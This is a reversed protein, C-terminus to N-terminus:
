RVFNRMQSCFRDYDFATNIGCEMVTKILSLKDMRPEHNDVIYNIKNIQSASLNSTNLYMLDWNRRILKEAQVVNEYVAIPKKKGINATRAETLINSIDIDEDVSAMKPFRKAITKFGAGIVGEVNDSNDGAITKALCFNRASIGFKNLVENGDIIKRTSPDYINILPDHLLQYFDKDNSVIIRKSTSTRFKDQALYAVIDDCETDPVYVQCVPTSKLLATLMTIQQIRTEDDLALVDRMNEKGQQIKKVEKMKARNAKYEPSIHRRRSSPGGNEWVVYVRSPCFTGVLYDVSKMFGVVGGVPQSRLNIEQNVMYSRIFINFGDIIIIPREQAAQSM